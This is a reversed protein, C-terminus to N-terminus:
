GHPPPLPLGFIKALIVYTLSSGGLSMALTTIHQKASLRGKAVGYSRAQVIQDRNYQDLFTDFKRSLNTLSRDIRTEIEQQRSHLNQVSQSLAGFEMESIGTHGRRFHSPSEDKDM